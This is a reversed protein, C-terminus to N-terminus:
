FSYKFYNNVGLYVRSIEEKIKVNKCAINRYKVDENTFKLNIKDYNKYLKNLVPIISNEIFKDGENELVLKRIITNTTFVVDNLEKIFYLGVKNEIRVKLVKIILRRLTLLIDYVNQKQLDNFESSIKTFDFTFNILSIIDLSYKKYDSASKIIKFLEGTILMDIIHNDILSKNADEQIYDIISKFNFLGVGAEILILHIAMDLCMLPNLDNSYDLKLSVIQNTGNYHATINLGYYNVDNLLKVLSDYIECNQRLGPFDALKEYRRGIANLIEIFYLLKKEDEQNEKAYEPTIDLINALKISGKFIDGNAVDVFNVM